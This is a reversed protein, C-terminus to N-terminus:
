GNKEKSLQYILIAHDLVKKLAKDTEALKRIDNWLQNDRLDSLVGKHEKGVLWRESEGAYRGYVTKGNDPSEYVIAKNEKLKGM